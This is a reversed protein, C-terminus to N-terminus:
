SEKELVRYDVKGRETRPLDKRYEIADPLMYDPLENKCKRIIEQTIEESAKYGDNLVV